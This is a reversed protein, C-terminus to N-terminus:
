NRGSNPERFKIPKKVNPKKINLTKRGNDKSSSHVHATTGDEATKIPSGDSAEVTEGPFSDFAEDVTTGDTITRIKNKGSNADPESRGKLDEVFDDADSSENFVTIPNVANDIVAGTIFGGIVIGLQIGAGVACGAPGGVCLAMSSRGDPDTYKYPNNNAYAYRNFGHIGNPTKFHGLTGVPDNSYFRGIVPDYYRAQMYSLETDTDFKHGAYGIDDKPSKIAEGFPRYYQRSQSASQPSVDGYKAILKDGLYIYNTGNGTFGHKERYLLKGDFGYMSYYVGDESTKKVRRNHGDYLYINGQASELQNAHNFALEYRGNHNINGRSDYQINQYGKESGLGFVSTLRNNEYSYRLDRDKSAYSVINGLSDYSIISDGIGTGGSIQKLRDLGDYAIAELSFRSDYNDILSTINNNNDYDYSLSVLKEGNRLDQIQSTRYTEAEVTTTHVVGNGYEFTHIAGNAHYQANKAYTVSSNAAKTAGGFGNPSFDVYTGDPYSISKQYGMNNYDYDIQLTGDGAITLTEDELLNLSNYNYSHTVKGASLTLLNGNNDRIYEVDIDSGPYNIKNLEGLNDYEYYNSNSPANKLCSTNTVGKKSWVKEGLINYGFMTNGVDARRVLCLNKVDDYDRHETFSKNNGYQTIERVLNYIDVDFETVVNEPSNIKVAIDFSPEGYARYTTTTVNGEADSTKIRNGSLYYYQISGKGTTAVKTVRGLGNFDFYSGRASGKSIDTQSVEDSKYYISQFKKQGRYNFAYYSFRTDDDNANDTEKKKILRLLPDYYETTTFKAGEGCVERSSNLLCRTVTRILSDSDWSYHTDLWKLANSENTLDIAILRGVKDYRFHKEIGNLDIEKTLWGNNDITKSSSIEGTGYRSAVKTIQPNGRKYGSYEIYRNGSGKIRALNFEVRKLNGDNHYSFTKQHQSYHYIKHPLLQNNANSFEKYVVSSVQNFASGDSSISMSEEQNLNWNVLDNFRKFKTSKLIDNFSNYEVTEYHLGFSYNSLAPNDHYRFEKTYSDGSEYVVTKYKIKEHGHEVDHRTWSNYSNIPYSIKKGKKYHAVTRRVPSSSASNKVEHSALLGERFDTTRYFNFIEVSGDPRLISRKKTLSLSNVTRFAGFDEDYDYVWEHLKQEGRLISKKVVADSTTSLSLWTATTQYTASGDNLVQTPKKGCSNAVFAAEYVNNAVMSNPIVRGNVIGNINYKITTGNPNRVSAVYPKAVMCAGKQEREVSRAPINSYQWYTLDPLTVKLDDDATAAYVWKRGNTEASTLIATTNSENKTYTLEIKRGDSAEIKDVQALMEKGSYNYTVSNGFRDEIRTAAIVGRGRDDPDHVQYDFYYKHGRPSKATFTVVGENVHKKLVWHDDTTYEYGYQEDLNGSEVWKLPKQAEGPVLISLGTWGNFRTPGRKIPPIDGDDVVGAVMPVDLYWGLRKLGGIRSRAHFMINGARRGFQVPLTSNGPINIDMVYFSLSGDNLSINEGTSESYFKLGEDVNQSKIVKIISSDDSSHTFLSSLSLFLCVIVRLVM